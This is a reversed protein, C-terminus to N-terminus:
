LLGMPKLLKRTYDVQLALEILKSRSFLSPHFFVNKENYITQSTNEIKRSLRRISSSFAVLFQKNQNKKTQQLDIPGSHKTSDTAFSRM